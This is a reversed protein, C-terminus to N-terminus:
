SRRLLENDVIEEIRNVAKEVEDNVVIYQFHDRYVLEKEANELRVRVEEMSETGRKMLRDRLDDISPPEIFITVAEPFVEIISIAGQVDVDLICVAARDLCRSLHERDTGKLDGHVEAWEIFDGREIKRMFEERGIFFYDVGDTESSRRKRTTYSVSFNIDSRRELLMRYITTKGSGSPATIVVVL